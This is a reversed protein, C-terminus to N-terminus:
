PKIQNQPLTATAVRAEAEPTAPVTGGTVAADKAVGCFVIGFGAAAEKLLLSYQPFFETSLMLALALAGSVTTRWNKGLSPVPITITKM